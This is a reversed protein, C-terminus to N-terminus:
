RKWCHLHVSGSPKSTLRNRAGTYALRLKRKACACQRPNQVKTCESFSLMAFSFQSMIFYEYVIRIHKLIHALTEAENCTALVEERPNLIWCSSLAIGVKHLQYLFHLIHLAGNLVTNRIKTQSSVFICHIYVLPISRMTPSHSHVRLILLM